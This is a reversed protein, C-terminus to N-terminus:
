REDILGRLRDLGRSVSAKVTGVSTGLVAAVEIERLDEFYRLVIAARQRPPLQLLARRLQDHDALADDFARGGRQDGTARAAHRRELLRRRLGGNLSNVMARRAYPGLSLVKGAQWQPYVRALAEALLDEAATVDGCLLYGFRLLGAHEAACAEAFGPPGSATAPAETVVM